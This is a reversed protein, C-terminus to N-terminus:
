QNTVQIFAELKELAKGSDLMQKARQIGAQISPCKEAIYLAVGANLLVVDRKAGQEKGTLIDLAIKKNDEPSGGVLDSPECYSFGYDEPDIVRNKLKGNRIECATTTTTLTIEDLGDDGCM